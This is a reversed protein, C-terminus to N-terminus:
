CGPGWKATCGAVDCAMVTCGLLGEVRSETDAGGLLRDGHGRGRGGASSPVAVSVVIGPYYGGVAVNETRTNATLGLTLIFTSVM